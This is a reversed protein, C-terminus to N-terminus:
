HGRGQGLREIAQQTRRAETAVEVALPQLQALRRLAPDLRGAEDAVRGGAVVVACLGFALVALPLIWIM